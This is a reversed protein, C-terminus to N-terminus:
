KIMELEQSLITDKIKKRIRLSWNEFDKIKFHDEYIMDAILIGDEEEEMKDLFEDGWYLGFKPFWQNMEQEFRDASEEVTNAHIEEFAWKPSSLEKSGPNYKHFLIMTYCSAATRYPKGKQNMFHQLYKKLLEIQELRYEQLLLTKEPEASLDCIEFPKGEEEKEEIFDEPNKIKTRVLDVVKNKAINCCYTTFKAKREYKHIQNVIAILTEQTIEEVTAHNFYSFYKTKKAIFAYLYDYLLEYMKNLDKSNDQCFADYEAEILDAISTNM